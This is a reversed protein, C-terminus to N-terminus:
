AEHEVLRITRPKAAERLLKDSETLHTQLANMAKKFEESATLNKLAGDVAQSVHLVKEVEKGIALIKEVQATLSASAKEIQQAQASMAAQMKDTGGGLASALQTALVGSAKEIHQAQASLAAQMKDTGGGLSSALQSALGSSAKEIQQAQAGMAAQMKDGSTNLSSALHTAASDLAKKLAEGATTHSQHIQIIKTHASELSATAQKLAGEMGSVTHKMTAEAASTVASALKEPQPVYNRFATDIYPGLEAGLEKASMATGPIRSTSKIVRALIAVLVLLSAGSLAVSVLVATETNM